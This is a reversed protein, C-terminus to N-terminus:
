MTKKCQFLFSKVESCSAEPFRHHCVGEQRCSALFLYLYHSELSDLSLYYRDFSVTQDKRFAGQKAVNRISKFTKRSSKKMTTSMKGASFNVGGEANAAVKLGKKEVLTNFRLSKRGNLHGPEKTWTRGARKVDFASFKNIIAWQLHSTSMIDSNLVLNLSILSRM